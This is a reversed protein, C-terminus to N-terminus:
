AIYVRGGGKMMFLDTVVSTEVEWSGKIVYIGNKKIIRLQLCHQRMYRLMPELKDRHLSSRATGHTNTGMSAPSFLLPARSASLSSDTSTAGGGGGGGTSQADDSLMDGVLRLRPM